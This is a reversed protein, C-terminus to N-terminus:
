FEPPNAQSVRDDALKVSGTLASSNPAEGRYTLTQYDMVADSSSPQGLIDVVQARSMGEKIRIWALPVQWPAAVALNGL